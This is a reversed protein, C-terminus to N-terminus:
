FPTGHELMTKLLADKLWLATPGPRGRDKGYGIPRGDFSTIAVCLTASTFLLAERARYIEEKDISGEIVSMREAALKLAEM